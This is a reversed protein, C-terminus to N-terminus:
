MAWEPVIVPDPTPLRSSYFSKPRKRHFLQAARLEALNWLIKILLQRKIRVGQM